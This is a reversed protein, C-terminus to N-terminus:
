YGGTNVGMFNGWSNDGDNLHANTGPWHNKDFGPAKEFYEKDRELIFTKKGAHVELLEFPIAFLKEGFGLLGDTELVVYEIKGTRINIMLEKIAGLEEGKPNEVRDGIISSSTLYRLPRNANAGDINRGTINEKDFNKMRVLNSQTFHNKLLSIQYLLDETHRQDVLFIIYMM